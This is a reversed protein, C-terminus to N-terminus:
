PQPRSCTQKCVLQQTTCNLNCPANGAPNVGGTTPGAVVCANQCNMVQTDCSVLCATATQSSLLPTPTLPIPQVQGQTPAQVAQALRIRDAALVPAVPIPAVQPALRIREAGFAGSSALLGLLICVQRVYRM